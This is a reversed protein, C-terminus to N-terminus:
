EVLLLPIQAFEDPGLKGVSEQSSPYTGLVTSQDGTLVLDIIRTHNTDDPAGGIRYQSAEVEVDRVRLVGATPFGEQSLVMAAYGFTTPDLVWEGGAEAAKDAGLQPLVLGSARISISGSPNVVVKAPSGSVEQPNGEDDSLFVKQNWGEIWVAMDWGSDSNLAANRGDLLLRAGTGKGPDIDVYIDFTQISLNIGSGWHNNIPGNLDFRFVFDTGDVGVSFASIDFVGPEFVADTPYTYTGPGNDDGTPDEVVLFYDIISLEPLIVQAPGETPVLQVDHGDSISGESWIVKLTVQDGPLPGGLLEFPVGIELVDNGESFLLDESGSPARWGGAPNPTSLTVRSEEGASLQVEILSSAGYGLLSDTGGFRSYGTTPSVGTLGMYIGLVGDGLEALPKEADVRLYFNNPDYGYFLTSLVDGARAQAGGRIEYFGAAGWEEDSVQGDVEVDILGQVTQTPPTSQAAIIPVKVFDPVPEGLSEFVGRLLARYAEDFYEDTGSDQDRGYWWFWDSGEALYMFDLAAALNEPSTEKTEKLDYDALVERTQRLYEWGLNEEQEGIWTGYDSSFWAGPWLEEIERQEPYLELYESPTITQITTSEQLKRYLASLFDIGDNNYNEWANEGDLIVSVLHPGEAGEEALRARIAEIRDIFDQAAEEGPDGSYEFGILDSIRLDRFVVAVKSGDQHQVYYPRYLADAEQVTENSDRTFGDLDL